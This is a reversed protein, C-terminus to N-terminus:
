PVEIDSLIGHKQRADAHHIGAIHIDPKVRRNRTFSRGRMGAGDDLSTKKQGGDTPVVGDAEWQQSPELLM